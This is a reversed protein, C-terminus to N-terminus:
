YCLCMAPKKSVSIIVQQMNIYGYEKTHSNGKGDDYM